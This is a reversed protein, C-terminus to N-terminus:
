TVTIDFDNKSVKLSSFYNASTNDTKTRLVVRIDDQIEITGCHFRYQNLNNNVSPIKATYVSFMSICNLLCLQTM